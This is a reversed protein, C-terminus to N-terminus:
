EGGKRRMPKAPCGVVTEGPKVPKVVVAGAGVTAGSGIDLYQRIQAGTGVLTGSGITVGGSVNAGPNIVCGRGIKAEHGVTAGFNVVAHADLVINVTLVAGACVQAGHAISCSSRDMQVSPHVLSPWWEPGFTPELAEAVSLRHTPTGMSLALADFEARHRELWAYDGLIQDRSDNPGINSLDTLVYGLFRFCPAGSIDRISEALWRIERAFGGAGIVVIRRTPM